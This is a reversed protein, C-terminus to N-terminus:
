RLGRFLLVRPRKKPRQSTAKGNANAGAQNIASSM